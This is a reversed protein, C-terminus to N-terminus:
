AKPKRGPPKPMKLYPYAKELMEQNIDFDFSLNQVVKRFLYTAAIEELEPKGGTAKSIQEKAEQKGLNEIARALNSYSKRMDKTLSAAYADLAQTDIGLIEFAKRDISQRISAIQAVIEEPKTDDRITIKKVAVWNKYRAYFEISENSEESSM